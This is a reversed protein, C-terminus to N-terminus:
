EVGERYSDSKTIKPKVKKGATKIEVTTETPIVGPMVIETQYLANLSHKVPFFVFRHIGFDIKKAIEPKLKVEKELSQKFEQPPLLGLIVDGTLKAIQSIQKEDTINNKECVNGINEATQESFVADKLDDPLQEYIKWVQEKPYEFM